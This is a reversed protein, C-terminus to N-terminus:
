NYCKWSFPDKENATAVYADSGYEMRCVDNMSIPYEQSPWAMFKTLPVLCRWSDATPNDGMLIVKATKAYTNECYYALDLDGLEAAQLPLAVALIAFLALFFTALKKYVKMAAGEILFRAIPPTM